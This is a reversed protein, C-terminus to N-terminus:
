REDAKSLYSQYKDPLEDRSNTKKIARENQGIRSNPKIDAKTTRRQNCRNQTIQKRHNKM